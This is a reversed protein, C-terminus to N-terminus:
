LWHEARDFAALAIAKDDHRKSRPLWRGDPDAAEVDHIQELLLDAGYREAVARVQNWNGLGYRPVADSVGDTTLMVATVGNLKWARM